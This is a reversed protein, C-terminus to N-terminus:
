DKNNQKDILIKDLEQNLAKIIKTNESSPKNSFHPKKPVNMFDTKKPNNPIKISQLSNLSFTNLLTKSTEHLYPTTISNQLWNPYKDLTTHKAIDQLTKAGLYSNSFLVALSSFLLLCIFAGRFFGAAFGLARDLMGGRIVSVMLIFKRTILSCIILSIIYAIIGSVVELAIPNVLYKTIIKTIYPQSFYTIIISSIFGLLGILLKIVGGYLGLLSSATIITLIILDFWTLM